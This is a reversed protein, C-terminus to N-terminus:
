PKAVAMAAISICRVSCYMKLCSENEFLETKLSQRLSWYSHDPIEDIRDWYDDNLLEDRWARGFRMDYLNSWDRALFTQLHVGNTVYSIPNERYPVDPWIYHEMESAVTGHIRSVGNHFRSGRLALAKQNFTGHNGPTAGLQLFTQMDIGLDKIFDLFYGAILEHDFIDHGAAVPTHTTFVTGGAIVELATAFEFGKLTGERCRELIQFASHGENIHWVTPKIGLARLARV